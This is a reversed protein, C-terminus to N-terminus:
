REVLELAANLVGVVSERDRLQCALVPVDADVGIAKAVQKASLEDDAMSTYTAVVFPVDGLSRVFELDARTARLSDRDNANALLM